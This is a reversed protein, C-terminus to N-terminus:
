ELPVAGAGGGPLPPLQHLARHPPLPAGCGQWVRRIAHAGAAGRARQPVDGGQGLQHAALVQRAGAPHQRGAEPGERPVPNHLLLAAPPVAPHLLGLAQPPPDARPQPVAQARGQAAPRLRQHHQGPDGPARGRWQAAGDRLHLPLVRQLHGQPHLRPAAHVQRLHPAPDDEPLRTGPPGGFRVIGPITHDPEHRHVQARSKGRDLGVGRLAPLVRVCHALAAM